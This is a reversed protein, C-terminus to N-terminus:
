RPRPAWEALFARIKEPSHKAGDELAGTDQTTLKKGAADLVVLVPLGNAIPNGYRTNVDANRKTGNRTNVDVLVIEFGARLARAVTPEDAFTAHLRRCWICWNAGFVLLVRKNGTTAQALASAIQPTGDAKPDYIDPGMLPYEPAAFVTGTLLLTALLVALRQM